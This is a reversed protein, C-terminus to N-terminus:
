MQERDRGCQEEEEEYWRERIVKLGAGYLTHM